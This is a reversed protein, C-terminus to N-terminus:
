INGVRCIMVKVLRTHQIPRIWILLHGLGISHVLSSYDDSSKISDVPICSELTMNDVMKGVDLKMYEKEQVVMSSDISHSFLISAKFSSSHRILLKSSEFGTLNKLDFIRVRNKLFFM